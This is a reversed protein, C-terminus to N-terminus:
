EGTWNPRSSLVKRTVPQMLRSYVASNSYVLSGHPTWGEVQLKNMQEILDATTDAEVIDYELETVTAM